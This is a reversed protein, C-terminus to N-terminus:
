FGLPRALIDETKQYAEPNWGFIPFRLWYPHKTSSSTEAHLLAPLILELSLVEVGTLAM